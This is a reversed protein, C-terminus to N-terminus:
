APAFGREYTTVRFDVGSIFPVVESDVIEWGPFAPPEAATDLDVLAFDPRGSERVVEVAFDL